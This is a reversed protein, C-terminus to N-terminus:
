AAGAICVQREDIRRNSLGRIVRGGAKNWRPFTDCGAAWQRAGFFRAASSRCFATVGINYALSGSAGWIKPRDALQPVCRYIPIMYDDRFRRRYIADCEQRTYVRMLIQTEGRCVTWIKVSDLYPALKVGEWKLTLADGVPMAIALSAAVAATLGAAKRTVDAM